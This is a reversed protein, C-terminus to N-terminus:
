LPKKDVLSRRRRHSSGAKEAQRKANEEEVVIQVSIRVHESGIAMDVFFDAAHLRFNLITLRGQKKAIEAAAFEFIRRGAHPFLKAARQNRAACSVGIDVPVAIQVKEDGRVVSWCVEVPVIKRISIM